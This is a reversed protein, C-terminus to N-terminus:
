MPLIAAGFRAAIGDSATVLTELPRLSPLEAGLRSLEVYLTETPLNTLLLDQALPSGGHGGLTADFRRCGAEYAARIKLPAHEPRSHLHLGIEVTDHIGRVAGTVHAIQAATALGVTDALSIQTIGNDVLLDCASVVEDIDWADGYPNGFAMSVYAVVEVGAKYALTGIAELADLAEEPNQRHNRDLYTPSISYPFALTSVASTAIAREAGQENVVLGIMEVEDPPDLYDLILESDDM